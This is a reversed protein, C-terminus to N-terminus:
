PITFMRLIEALARAAQKTPDTVNPSARAAGGAAMALFM